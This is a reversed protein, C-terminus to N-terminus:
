QRRFNWSRSDPNRALWLIMSSLCVQSLLTVLSVLLHRWQYGEWKANHGMPLHVGTVLGAGGDVFSVLLAQLSDVVRMRFLMEACSGRSGWMRPCNWDPTNRLTFLALFVAFCMIMLLCRLLVARRLRQTWLTLSASVMSNAVTFLLLLVVALALTAPWELFPFRFNPYYEGSYGSRAVGVFRLLGRDPVWFFYNYVTIVLSLSTLALGSAVHLWRYHVIVARVAAFLLRKRSLNGVLLDPVGNVWGFGTLQLTSQMVRFQFAWFTGLTLAAMSPILHPGLTGIGRFTIWSPISAVALAIVLLAKDLPRYPAIQQLYALAHVTLQDRRFM